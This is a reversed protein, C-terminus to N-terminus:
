WREDDSFDMNEVPILDEYEYMSESFSSMSTDLNRETYSTNIAGRMDSINENNQSQQSMRKIRDLLGHVEKSLEMKSGNQFM